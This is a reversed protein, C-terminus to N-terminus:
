VYMKKTVFRYSVTNLRGLFVFSSMWFAQHQQPFMYKANDIVIPWQGYSDLALLNSDISECHRKADLWSSQVNHVLYLVAQSFRNTLGHLDKDSQPFSLDEMLYMPALSELQYYVRMRNSLEYVTKGQLLRSHVQVTCQETYVEAPIQIYLMFERKM